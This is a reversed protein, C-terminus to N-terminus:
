LDRFTTDVRVWFASYNICGERHYVSKMQVSYTISLRGRDILLFLLSKDEICHISDEECWLQAATELSYAWPWCGCLLLTSFVSGLFCLLESSVTACMRRGWNLHCNWQLAIARVLHSTWYAETERMYLDRTKNSQPSSCDTEKTNCLSTIFVWLRSLGSEVCCRLKTELLLLVKFVDILARNGQKKM